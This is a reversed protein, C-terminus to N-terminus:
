SKRGKYKRRKVSRRSMMKCPYCWDAFFDILVTKKEELVENQFNNDTIEHVSM